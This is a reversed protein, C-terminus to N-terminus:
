RRNKRRLLILGVLGSGMLLMTPPIPVAARNERASQEAFQAAPIESESFTWGGGAAPTWTLRDFGVITDGYSLIWDFVFPDTSTRDTAYTTFAFGGQVSSDFAPGTARAYTPNILTAAWDPEIITLGPATWTGGSVLFAEAKDWIQQTAPTGYRGNESWGQIYDADAMGPLCVFAALSLMAMFKPLNQKMEIGRLM